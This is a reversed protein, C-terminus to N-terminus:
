LDNITGEIKPILQAMITAGLDQILINGSKYEELQQIPRSGSVIFSKHVSQVELLSIKKKIRDVISQYEIEQNNIWIYTLSPTNFWKGLLVLEKHSYIGSLHSYLLVPLSFNISWKEAPDSINDIISQLSYKLITDFYFWFLRKEKNSAFFFKKSEQHISESSKIEWFYWYTVLDLYSKISRFNKQLFFRQIFNITIYKKEIEVITSYVQDWYANDTPHFKKRQSVLALRLSGQRAHIKRLITIIMSTSTYNESM